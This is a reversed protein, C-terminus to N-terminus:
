RIVRYDGSDIDIQLKDAPVIKNFRRGSLPYVYQVPFKGDKRARGIYMIPNGVTAPDPDFGRNTLM